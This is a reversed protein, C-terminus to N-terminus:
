PSEDDSPAAGCWISVVDNWRGVTDAEPDQATVTGSRGSPYRPTFGDDVLEARAEECSDGILDPVENPPAAGAVNLVVTIGRKVPTGAAPRTSRVSSSSGSSGFVLQWGLGLDRLEERAEEFEMGVLDPVTFGSTPSPAASSTVPAPTPRGRSPSPTPRASPTPSSAAEVPPTVPPKQDGALVWGGAAGIVALLAAALGGGVILRRDSGADGRGSRGDMTGDTM